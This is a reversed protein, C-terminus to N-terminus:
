MKHKARRVQWLAFLAYLWSVMLVAPGYRLELWERPPRPRAWFLMPEFILHKSMAGYSFIVALRPSHGPPLLAAMALPWIVYWQQFWLCTLLLYFMLVNFSARSFNLWSDDGRTQKSQWLVFLLTLGAATTSILLSAKEEGLTPKLWAHLTAPLSATYINARRAINLTQLSDWFPGYATIVLLTATITTIVLFRLRAWSGTLRRWAIAAAIPLMLIPVFKILTGVLLALISLTYRRYLLAWAAALLWVAMAIDNHGNGMTEYLVVPNWALLTVGALAREPAMRRLIVAVLGISAALFFGGLLKFAIVNAIIGDGALRALGGALSEWIPGYASPTRKWAVYPLFPDNTFQRAVQRFPNAGYVALIRGHMINDFIDAADFPYLFLLILSFVLAGGLVIFWAVKGRTQLAARWGLWYLLGQALFACTLSWHAMPNDKSLRYLNLLPHRYLDFLQYPRTFALLYILASLGALGALAILATSNQTKPRPRELHLSFTQVFVRLYSTM